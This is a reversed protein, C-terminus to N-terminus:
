EKVIIVTAKNGTQLNWEYASILKGTDDYVHLEATNPGSTGQNLALFDIRNFGSQLPLNFGKFSSSLYIASQVIDDNVFVRILDGDVYQHDRYLVNVLGSKTKCDGLYQNGKNENEIESDKTFYKPAKGSNYELLGDDKSMDLEETKPKGLDTYKSSPKPNSLGPKKIPPLELGKPSSYNRDSKDFRISDKAGDVQGSLTLCSLFFFSISIFLTIRM